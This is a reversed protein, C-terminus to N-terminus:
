EVLERHLVADRGFHKTAFRRKLASVTEPDTFIQEITYQSTVVIRKPRIVFTGNKIEAQFPYHDSWEKLFAGIWNQHTPDVDDIIVTEHEGIKFGNWWKNKMKLYAGPWRKRAERSKGSGSKGCFWYNELVDNEPHIMAEQFDQRIGKFANRYKVFLDSSIEDFRGEKAFARAEDWRDVELEGKEESSLPKIGFEIFDGEKSCYEYNQDVTGRAMEVHGGPHIAHVLKIVSKMSRANAFYVYGQVHKTGTSPAVEAGAIMYVCVLEELKDLVDDAYNNLTFTFARSRQVVM